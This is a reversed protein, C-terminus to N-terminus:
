GLRGHSKAEQEATFQKATVWQIAGTPCRLTPGPETFGLDGYDIVPLGNRMQILGPRADNVCRGCADCAVRCIMRADEGTLPASCQVILPQRVPVLTILDRPCADICDGCATCKAPDVVPLGEPSMTIAGFTCASQCDALGLCGWSCAKGGASVMSAARCSEFGEYAAMQFAHGKDGACHIRAVRKDAAGADVGLLEAIAEVASPASVTCGSPAADGALLREAFAHCGPSGCAGCNTAPLLNEVAELRPDEPVRLFRYAVALVAGFFLGLGGMIALATAIPGM